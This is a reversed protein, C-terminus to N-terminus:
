RIGASKTSASGYALVQEWGQLFQGAVSVPNHHQAVYARGDHALRNFDNKRDLVASMAQCLIAPSPDADFAPSAPVGCHYGDSMKTAGSFVIKGAALMELANMGLSHGNVQDIVIDADEMRTLYDNYALGEIVEFEFDKRERGLLEMAKMVAETGKFGRRTPTHVILPKPISRAPSFSIPDIDVPFPIRSFQHEDFFQSTHDYEVVSSAGWDFYSAVRRGNREWLPNLIQECDQGLTKDLKICGECPNYTLQLNRRILGIEDCGLAYYSLVKAKRRVLPMDLYRTKTGHVTTITNAFSIVDYSPMKALIAFPEINRGLSGLLGPRSHSFAGDYWNWSTGDSQVMHRVNVGHERLGKALNRHVGSAEGILLVDRVVHGRPINM